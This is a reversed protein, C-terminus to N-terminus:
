AHKSSAVHEALARACRRYLEYRPSDDAIYEISHVFLGVNADEVGERVAALIEAADLAGHQCGGIAQREVMEPAVNPTESFALGLWVQAPGTICSVTHLDGRRGFQM